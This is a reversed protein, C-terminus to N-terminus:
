LGQGLLMVDDDHGVVKATMQNAPIGQRVATGRLPAHRAGQCFHNDGGAEKAAAPLDPPEQSICCAKGGEKEDEQGGDQGAGHGIM